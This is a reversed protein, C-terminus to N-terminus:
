FGKGYYVQRFPASFATFVIIINLQEWDQLFPNINCTAAYLQWAKWDKEQYKTAQPTFGAKILKWTSVVDIIEGM